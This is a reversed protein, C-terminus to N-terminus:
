KANEQGTIRPPWVEGTYNDRQSFLKLWAAGQYEKEAQEQLQELLAGLAETSTRAANALTNKQHIGPDFTAIILTAHHQLLLSLLPLDHAAQEHWDQGLGKEKSPNM